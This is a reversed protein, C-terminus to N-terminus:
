LEMLCDLIVDQAVLRFDDFSGAMPAAGAEFTGAAVGVLIQDPLVPCVTQWSYILPMENWSEVASARYFMRVQDLQRCVRLEAQTAQLAPSEVRSTEGAISCKNTTGQQANPLTGVTLSVFAPAKPDTTPDVLVLGASAHAEVPASTPDAVQQVRAHVQLVFDGSTEQVWATGTRDRWWTSYEQPQITLRHDSGTVAHAQM